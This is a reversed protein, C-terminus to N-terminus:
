LFSLLTTSIILRRNHDLRTQGQQQKPLETALQLLAIQPTMSSCTMMMQQIKSERIAALRLLQIGEEREQNRKMDATRQKMKVRDVM